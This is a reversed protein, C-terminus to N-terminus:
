KHHCKSCDIGATVSFAKRGDHCYGCSAGLEMKRMTVRDAGKKMEFLAFSLGRGEHCDACSLGKSAHVVADFVVEGAGKGDFVVNDVCRRAYANGALSCVLLITIIFYNMYTEAEGQTM